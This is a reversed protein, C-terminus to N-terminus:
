RGPGRLDSRCRREELDAAARELTPDAALRKAMETFRRGIARGLSRRDSRRAAEAHSILERAFM